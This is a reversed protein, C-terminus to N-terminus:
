PLTSSTGDLATRGRKWIGESDLGATELAALFARRRCNTPAAVAGMGLDRHRKTLSTWCRWCSSKTEFLLAAGAAAARIRQVAMTKKVPVIRKIAGFLGDASLPHKTGIASLPATAAFGKRNEQRVCQRTM